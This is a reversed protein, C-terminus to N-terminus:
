HSKRKFVKPAISFCRLQQLVNLFHQIRTGRSKTGQSSHQRQTTSDDSGDTPNDEGFPASTSQSAKIVNKPRCGDKTGAVYRTTRLATAKNERKKDAASPQYRANAGTRYGKAKWHLSEDQSNLRVHDRLKKIEATEDDADVIDGDSDGSADADDDVDDDDAAAGISDTEEGRGGIWRRCNPANCYCRMPREGYRQFNYDFSLEEDAQIDRLAFLGIAIEGDVTWKQTELNPACSHNIFRAVNGYCTADIVESGSMRMFYAHVFGAKDYTRKRADYQDNRLVEGVYEIVFAGKELPQSVALGFGKNGANFVYTHAHERTRIRQNTCQSGAPCAFPDCEIMMQRNM